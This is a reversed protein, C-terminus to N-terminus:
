RLLPLEQWGQLWPSYLSSSPLSQLDHGSPVNESSVPKSSTLISSSRFSLRLSPRLSLLLMIGGERFLEFGEAQRKAGRRLALAAMSTDASYFPGLPVGATAVFHAAALASTFLNGIFSSGAALQARVSLMDVTFHYVTGKHTLRPLGNQINVFGALHALFALERVRDGAM